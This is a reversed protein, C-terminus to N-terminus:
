ETSGPQNLVQQKDSPWDKFPYPKEETNYTLYQLLEHIYINLNHSFTKIRVNSESTILNVIIQFFITIALVLGAVYLVLSFLLMFLLRVWFNTNKLNQKTEENIKM